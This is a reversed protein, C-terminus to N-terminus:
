RNSILTGGCYHLSRFTKFPMPWVKRLSVQYSFQGPDAQLGGHIRPTLSFGNKPLLNQSVSGNVLVILAFCYRVKKITLSSKM